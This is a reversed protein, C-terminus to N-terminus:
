QGVGADPSGSEVVGAMAGGRELELGTHIGRVTIAMGPQDCGMITM